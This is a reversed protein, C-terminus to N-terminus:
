TVSRRRRPRWVRQYPAPAKPTRMAWAPPWPQWSLEQPYGALSAVYLARIKDATLLGSHLRIDDLAGAFTRAGTAENGISVPVAADSLYTGTAATITSAAATAKGNVYFLPVNSPALSNYVVAVHQWVNVTIVNAVAWNGGSTFDQNMGLGATVNTNNLYFSWGPGPDRKDVIRALNGGGFSSPKIWATYTRLRIDRLRPHNGANLFGATGNLRVEGAGGVRATAGWGSSASSPGVGSALAPSCGVLDQWQLAGARLPLVKWWALLGQNLPAQGNVPSGYNLTKPGQIGLM